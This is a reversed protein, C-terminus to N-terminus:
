IHIFTLFLCLTHTIQNCVMCIINRYLSVLLGLKERFYKEQLYRSELGEFPSPVTTFVEDLGAISHVDINSM